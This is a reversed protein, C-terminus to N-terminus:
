QVCQVYQVSLGRSAQAEMCSHRRLYVVELSALTRLRDNQGCVASLSYTKIIDECESQRM